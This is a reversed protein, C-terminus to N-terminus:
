RHAIANVPACGQMEPTGHLLNRSRLVERVPEFRFEGLLRRLRSETKHLNTYHRMRSKLSTRVRPQLPDVEWPHLYFVFPKTERNLQRLGYRTLWYPLLRFYGGGSVPITLGFFKATSMPFEVIERGLPTQIPGPTTPAGPIGYLDHRIPFISSDYIFGADLLVDLAWLSRNTISYTSARYGLVPAGIIQELMGKAERTEEAFETLTQNYVLQHSMGHSAVEHGAAHIARVLLPSRRAVWGLVFFTAKVDFEAFLDLLRHTNEEARYELRSWDTRDISQALAAVHFYDEVDITMANMVGSTLREMVDKSVSECDQYFVQRERGVLIQRREFGRGPPPLM